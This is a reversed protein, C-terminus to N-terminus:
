CVEADKSPREGFHLNVMSETRTILDFTLRFVAFLVALGLVCMIVIQGMHTTFVGNGDTGDLWGDSKNVVTNSTFECCTGSGLSSSSMPDTTSHAGSVSFNM